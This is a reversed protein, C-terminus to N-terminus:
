LRNLVRPVARRGVITSLEFVAPSAFRLKPTVVHFRQVVEAGFRDPAFRALLGGSANWPDIRVSPVNSGRLISFLPNRPVVSDARRSIAAPGSRV